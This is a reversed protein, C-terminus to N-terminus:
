AAGPSTRGDHKRERALERAMRAKLSVLHFQGSEQDWWLGERRFERRFEAGALRRAWQIDLLQGIRRLALTAPTNPM